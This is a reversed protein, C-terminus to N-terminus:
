AILALPPQSTHWPRQRVQPTLYAPCTTWYQDSSAIRHVRGTRRRHQWLVWKRGFSAMLESLEPVTVSYQKQVHLAVHQTLVHTLLCKLPTPRRIVPLFL